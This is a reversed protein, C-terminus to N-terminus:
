KCLEQENSCRRQRDDEGCHRDFRRAGARIVVVGVGPDLYTKLYGGNGQVEGSSVPSQNPQAAVEDVSRAVAITAVGGAARRVEVICRAAIGIELLGLLDVWGNIQTAARVKTWHSRWGSWISIWPRIHDCSIEGRILISHRFASHGKRLELVDHAVARVEVVDM